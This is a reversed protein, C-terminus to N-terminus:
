HFGASILLEEPLHHKVVARRWRNIYKERLQGRNQPRTRAKDFDILFVKGRPDV